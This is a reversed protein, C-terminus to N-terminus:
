IYDKLSLLASPSGLRNRHYHYLAEDLFKMVSAYVRSVANKMRPTPFITEYLNVLPLSASLEDLYEVLTEARTHDIM